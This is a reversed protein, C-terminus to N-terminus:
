RRASAELALVDVHEPSSYLQLQWSRAGSNGDGPIVFLSLTLDAYAPALAQGELALSVREFPLYRFARHAVVIVSGPQSLGSLAFAQAKGEIRRPLANTEPRLAHLAPGSHLIVSAPFLGMRGLRLRPALHAARWADRQLGIWGARDPQAPGGLSLSHADGCAQLLSVASTFELQQALHGYM